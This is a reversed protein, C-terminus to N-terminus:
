SVLRSTPTPQTTPRESISKQKAKSRNARAGSLYCALASRFQSGGLINLMRKLNYVLTALSIETQAGATPFTVQRLGDALGRDLLAIAHEVAFGVSQEIIEGFGCEIAGAFLLHVEQHGDGQEDDVIQAHALQRKGGGFFQQLDDHAALFAGAGHQGGVSLATCRMISKIRLGNKHLTLWTLLCAIGKYIWDSSAYRTTDSSQM